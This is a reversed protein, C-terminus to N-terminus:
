EISSGLRLADNERQALHQKSPVELGALAQRLKREHRQEPGRPCRDTQREIAQRVFSQEFRLFRGAESHPSEREVIDPVRDLDAAHEFAGGRSHRGLPQLAGLLKPRQLQVAPLGFFQERHRAISEDAVDLDVFRKVGSHPPQRLARHQASRDFADDRQGEGRWAREDEAPGAGVLAVGFRQDRDLMVARDDFRDFLAFAGARLRQSALVGPERLACELAREIM